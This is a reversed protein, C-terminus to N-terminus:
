QGKLDSIGPFFPDFCKPEVNSAVSKFPSPNISRKTPSTPNGPNIFSVLPPVDAFASM